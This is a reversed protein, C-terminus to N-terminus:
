KAWYYYADYAELFVYGVKMALQVVRPQRCGLEPAHRSAVVVSRVSYAM